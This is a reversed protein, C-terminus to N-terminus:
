LVRFGIDTEVVDVGGGFCGWLGKYAVSGGSTGMASKTFNGLLVVVMPPEERYLELVGRLGDLVGKGDLEVEGCFVMKGGGKEAARMARGQLGGGEVGMDLTVGGGLFDVHGFVEASAERREPLPQGLTFVTFRSDEEFAGDVVCFCGPTFWSGDDPVASAISLDLIIEGTNDLLTLVGSPNISLM